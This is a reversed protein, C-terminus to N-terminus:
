RSIIGDEGYRSGINGSSAGGLGVVSGLTSNVASRHNLTADSSVKENDAGLLTSGRNNNNNANSGGRALNHVSAGSRNQIKRFMEVPLCDSLDIVTADIGVKSWSAVDWVFAEEM